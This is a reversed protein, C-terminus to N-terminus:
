RTSSGSCTRTPTAPSACACRRRAARAPSGSRSSRSARHRRAPGRRRTPHAEGRRGGVDLHATKGRATRSRSSRTPRSSASPSAAPDGRRAGVGVVVDFPHDVGLYLRAAARRDRRRRDGIAKAISRPRGPVVLMYIIGISPSRCSRRGHGLAALLGALPRHRRRRVAAPAPVGRYLLVASSRSSSRRQRPVHVPAALPPVRGDRRAARAAVVFM